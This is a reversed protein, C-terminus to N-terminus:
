LIVEYDLSTDLILFTNFFGIKYFYEKLTENLIKESLDTQIDICKENLQKVLINDIPYMLLVNHVTSIQAKDIFLLYLTM